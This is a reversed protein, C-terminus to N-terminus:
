ASFLLGTGNSNNYLNFTVTGTPNYGGSVTAQDAISSGVTASAPTQSTNIAPQAMTVTVPEATTVSTVSANNTDGNYTAVWYDTGTATATYGTSTAAGNVLAVNADSFLLGTGNSNSFLNFTVSGTPNYGGSVTTQDAISSGVTASAPQQSTNISPTVPTISVPEATTVSTVSANNSDGNYTAVWYDTGTATATYGASTAVGSSLPVNADTFLATGSGTSNNYLNFTVTGTLNYGGSVTATDAISTGVTASAPQQSTNIAPTAPTVTVQEPNKSTYGDYTAVWYDTGTATATYGASTAKGSSLPETDAFLLGTGNSNSFLNFTVSGTSGGVVTAQDAISSGVTATAPQPSTTITPGELALLLRSECPEILPVVRRTFQKRRVVRRIRNKHNWM